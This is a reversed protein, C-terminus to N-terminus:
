SLLVTTKSQAGLGPPECRWSVDRLHDAVRELVRGREAGGPVDYLSYVRKIDFPIHRGGEVFTLNGRPDAIKPFDILRCQDLKGTVQTTM